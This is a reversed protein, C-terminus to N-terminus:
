CRTIRRRPPVSWCRCSKKCGHGRALRRATQSVDAYLFRLRAGPSLAEVAADNSRALVMKANEPENRPADYWSAGPNAVGRRIRYYRAAIFAYSSSAILCRSPKSCM